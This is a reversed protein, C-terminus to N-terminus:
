LLNFNLLLSSFRLIRLLITTKGVNSVKLSGKSTSTITGKATRSIQQSEMQPSNKKAINDFHSGLNYALDNVQHLNGNKSNNSKAGNTEMVPSQVLTCQSGSIKRRPAKKALM